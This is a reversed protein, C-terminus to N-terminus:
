GDKEGQTPATAIAWIGVALAVTLMAGGISLFVAPALELREAVVLAAGGGLLSYGLAAVAKMKWEESRRISDIGATVAASVYLTWVLSFLFDDLATGTIESPQHVVTMVLIGVVILGVTLKALPSGKM